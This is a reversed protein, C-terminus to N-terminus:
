AILLEGDDGDEQALLEGILGADFEPFESALQAAVAEANLPYLRINQHTSIFALLSSPSIAPWIRRRRRRGRMM